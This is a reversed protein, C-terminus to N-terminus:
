GLKMAVEAATQHDQASGYAATTEVTVHGLFSRAADLGMARTVKQKAGHRLSYPVVWPLGARVAARKVCQWYSNKELFKSRDFPAHFVPWEPQDPKLWAQLIAQAVPGLHVIREQGRWANKHTAPRYIWVDPGTMDLDGTRMSLLEAPRMATLWQVQVLARGVKSRMRALIADVQAQNVPRRRETQRVRADNRSIGPVSKLNAWSGPPILKKREAWRWITKIRSVHRNIVNRCWPIAGEAWTGAAMALQLVELAASDFAAAPHDGFLARLPRMAQAMAAPERSAPAYRPREEAWWRALVDKVRLSPVPATPAIGKPGLRAVLARYAADAEPSGHQGLYYDRGAVRVFAQGSKHKHISPPWIVPRSM